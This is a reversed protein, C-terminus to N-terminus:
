EAAEGAKRSAEKLRAMLTPLDEEAVREVRGDLFLVCRCFHSSAGSVNEDDPRHAAPCYACATETPNAFDLMSRGHVPFVYPRDHQVCHAVSEDHDIHPLLYPLISSPLYGDHDSSYLALGLSINKLNSSCVYEPSAQHGTRLLGLFLVWVGCLLMLAILSLAYAHKELPSLELRLGRRRGIAM